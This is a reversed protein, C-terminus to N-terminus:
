LLHYTYYGSPKSPNFSVHQGASQSARRTVDHGGSYPFYESDAERILSLWREWESVRFLVESSQKM